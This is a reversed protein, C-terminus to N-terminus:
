LNAYTYNYLRKKDDEQSTIKGLVFLVIITARKQWVQLQVHRDRTQFWLLVNEYM